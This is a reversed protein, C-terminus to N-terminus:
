INGVCVTFNWNGKVLRKVIIDILKKNCGYYSVYGSLLMFLPMHFSYIVKLANDDFFDFAGASMYQICHGWLVLLISIGKAFDIFHDRRDTLIINKNM